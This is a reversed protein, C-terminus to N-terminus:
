VNESERLVVRQGCLWQDLNGHPVIVHTSFGHCMKMCDLERLPISLDRREIDRMLHIFRQNDIHAVSFPGVTPFSFTCKTNDENGSAIGTKM